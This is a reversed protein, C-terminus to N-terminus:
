RRESSRRTIAADLVVALVLIAGQVELRTQTSASILLMGNTISGMVLAGILAAWVSGRGGFLSAGGIVAAAIAELVLTNDASDTSVAMVRSAAIMGALAALAGTLTFAVIRIVNVPIGARRAAERNAGIAYLYLGFRTQTTVYTMVALLVFLLAVTLPVGRYSNMITIVVAGLLAILSMPLIVRQVFHSNISQARKAQHNLLSLLGFVVIGIALLGYGVAAPLYITSFKGLPLGVLSIMNTEPLLDLLVGQLALSFGLTVIFAPARFIDVILGQVFGIAAGVVIAVGFCAFIDLNNNVAFDAAVTASVASSVAVSLDLEGILLVFLLGLALIATVVIQVSLNTINRSSLFVPNQYAFYGWIVCLVILVPVMRWRGSVADMVLTSIKMPNNQAGTAALTM